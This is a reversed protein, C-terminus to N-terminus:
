SRKSKDNERKLAGALDAFPRHTDPEVQPADTPELEMAEDAIPQCTGAEHSRAHSSVMPLSILLEDELLDVLRVREQTCVIGDEDDSLDLLVAESEVVLHHFDARLDFEMSELCRQCLLSIRATASGVIRAKRKGVQRFELSVKVVGKSNQLSKTLRAFKDLAITGQLKRNEVALKRQNLLEPLPATSM